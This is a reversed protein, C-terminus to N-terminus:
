DNGCGEKYIAARLAAKDSSKTDQDNASSPQASSASLAAADTSAHPTDVPAEALITFSPERVISLTGGLCGMERRMGTIGGRESLPGAPANGDDTVTLRAIPATAASPAASGAEVGSSAIGAASTAASGAMAGKATDGTASAEIGASDTVGGFESVTAGGIAANGVDAGTDGIRELEVCVHKAHAHRCSNTCAERIVKAFAIGVRGEPLEGQVEVGVGVLAFASVIADLEARADCAADQRLDAMVSSLLQELEAVSEPDTKGMELYRHLISLRQGVVDHVRSRMRLYAATQAARDVDALCARLEDAAAKLQRNTESLATNARTAETVDLCVVKATGARKDLTDRVFLWTRKDPLDVLLNDTGQALEAPAGLLRAETTLSRGLRALRPWLQSQDGLDVPLGLATLCERMQVNMFTSGGTAGIVLVGVPMGMLAEASSLDSLDESRRVLDRSIGCLGRFLLWTIDLLAAVNWAPGMAEIVAPTCLAMFLADVLHDPRCRRVAVAFALAAFAANSWLLWFASSSALAWALVAEGILGAGVTLVLAQALHLLVATELACSLRRSRPETQFAVFFLHVVQLSMNVFEGAVVLVLCAENLLLTRM